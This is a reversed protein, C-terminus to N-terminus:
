VTEAAQKYEKWILGEPLVKWQLEEDLVHEMKEWEAKVKEVRDSSRPVIRAPFPKPHVLMGETLNGADPLVDEGDGGKVPLVDFAWLLRAIALFLSREAIHMGQCLRRGAGFVFQDRKTPDPNAAAEQATQADAAYRSPDFRHPDPHRAPDMHIAWVNWMVGAGKPIKYGMYEDDQTVAHPVGLIATPMWRLSEKICGRIYPLSPEDDLTPFRSGCIRDLEEQATKAVSPYLLMAQVFGLLTAATTDSGAELMSGSIYGAQADSFGYEDQARLLDVCFCPRAKGNKIAQKIRLWHGIYLESEKRHLEKAYRRLPLLIDPLSRFIPFLDLVAATQTGIIESFAAVGSYLQKLKPDHISTTRFGFIMQTTLSNSYRNIHDIFLEPTELLGMLMAKNELDQYPVYTKAAKINLNNHVIKRIMRWTSGYEMLLMRLGGSAIQGIYMEPRSSYIGSRKDLLDKVAQDTNLVIMVKTGLILSYIPGYEQAWKQFQVHAKEKPMLHLNGILPLTPPGPPYNAPRRGIKSLRYAFLAICALFYSIMGNTANGAWGLTIGFTLASGSSM